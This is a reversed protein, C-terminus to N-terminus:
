IDKYYIRVELFHPQNEMFSFIFFNALIVASWLGYKRISCFNIKLWLNSSMYFSSSKEHFQFNLNKGLDAACWLGYERIM